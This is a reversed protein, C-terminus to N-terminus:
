KKRKIKPFNDINMPMIAIKKIKDSNCDRFKTPAGPVYKMPNMIASPIKASKRNSKKIERCHGDQLFLIFFFYRSGFFGEGGDSSHM